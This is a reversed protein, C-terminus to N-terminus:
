LLEFPCLGITRALNQKMSVKTTSRTSTFCSWAPPIQDQGWWETHNPCTQLNSFILSCYISLQQLIQDCVNEGERYQCVKSWATLPPRSKDWWWSPLSCDMRGKLQSSNCCMFKCFCWSCFVDKKVVQETYGAVLEKRCENEPSLHQLIEPDVPSPTFVPLTLWVQNTM